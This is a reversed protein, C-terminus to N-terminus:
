EQLDFAFAAFRFAFGGWLTGTLAEADRIGEGALDRVVESLVDNSWSWGKQLLSARLMEAIAVLKLLFDVALRTRCSDECPLQAVM